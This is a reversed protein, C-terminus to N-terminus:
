TESELIVVGGLVDAIVPQGVASLDEITEDDRSVEVTEDGRRGAGGGSATGGGLAGASGAAAGPGHSGEERSRRA